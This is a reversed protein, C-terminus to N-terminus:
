CMLTKDKGSINTLTELEKRLIEGTKIRQEFNSLIYNVSRKTRGTLAAIESPYFGERFLAYVLLYRADVVSTTKDSSIIKDYSTETIEEVMACTDAFIKSKCM